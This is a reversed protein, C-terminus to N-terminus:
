RQQRSDPAMWSHRVTCRTPEVWRAAPRHNGGSRVIALVLNPYIWYILGLNDRTASNADPDDALLNTIWMSPFASGTTSASDDHHHHQWDRGTRHQKSPCVSLPLGRRVSRASRELVGSKFERETHYGYSESELAALDGALPGLHQDVDIDADHYSRGSSATSRRRPCNSWATVRAIWAPSARRAGPWPHLNVLTRTPGPTTPAHSGGPMAAGCAPMAGRHRCYNLFVHSKGAQDRTILLSDGLVSRVVYDNPAQFGAVPMVAVTHAATDAVRRARHAQPRQLLSPSRRLDDDAM